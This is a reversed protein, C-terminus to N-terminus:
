QRRRHRAWRQRTTRRSWRRTAQSRHMPRRTERDYFLDDGLSSHEQRRREASVKMASVTELTMSKKKRYTFFIFLGFAILLLGAVSGCLAWAPVGATHLTDPPIRCFMHSVVVIVVVTVTTSRFLLRPSRLAVASCSWSYRSPSSPASCAARVCRRVLNASTHICRSVLRACAHIGVCTHWRMYAVRCGCSVQWDSRRQGGGRVGRRRRRASTRWHNAGCCVVHYHGAGDHEIGLSVRLSRNIYIPM